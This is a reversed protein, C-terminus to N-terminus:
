VIFGEKDRFKKLKKPPASLVVRDRGEKLTPLMSTGKPSFLVEGGEALKERILHIADCLGIKIERM